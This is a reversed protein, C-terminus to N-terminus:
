SGRHQEMQLSLHDIARVMHKEVASVSIGLQIAIDRYRRGELRRLIFVTRTREPLSLLAKTAVQLDQKGALVREPDIEDEGHVESDFAVHLGAAHTSRLRARDALVSSATKLIYGGLHEVPEPSDRAVIRAFVDQVMDEIDSVNRVRRRFYRTLWGRVPGVREEPMSRDVEGPEHQTMPGSKNWLSAGNALATGPRIAGGAWVKTCDFGSTARGFIHVLKTSTGSHPCVDQHGNQNRRRHCGTRDASFDGRSLDAHANQMRAEGRRSGSALM